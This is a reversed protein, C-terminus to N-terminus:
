PIVAPLKASASKRRWPTWRENISVDWTTRLSRDGSLITIVSFSGSPPASLLSLLRSIFYRRAVIAGSSQCPSNSTVVLPRPESRLGRVPSSGKKISLSSTAHSLTVKSPCPRPESGCVKNLHSLEFCDRVLNVMYYPSIEINSGTPLLIRILRLDDAM